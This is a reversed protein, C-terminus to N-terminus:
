SLLKVSVVSKGTSFVLAKTYSDVFSVYLFGHKQHRVGKSQRFDILVYKSSGTLSGHYKGWNLDIQTASLMTVM